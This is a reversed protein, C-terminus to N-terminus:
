EAIYCNNGGNAQVPIKMFWHVYQQKVHRDIICYTSCVQKRVQQITYPRLVCGYGVRCTQKLAKNYVQITACGINNKSSHGKVPIDSDAERQSISGNHISIVQHFDYRPHPKKIKSDYNNKERKKQIALNALCVHCIEDTIIWRYHFEHTFVCFHIIDISQKGQNQIVDKCKRNHCKCVNM